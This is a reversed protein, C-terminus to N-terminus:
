LTVSHNLNSLDRFLEDLELGGDCAPIDEVLGPQESGQGAQGQVSGPFHPANVVERPSRNWQREVKMTFFMKTVDLRFRGEKLKFVQASRSKVAAEPFVM